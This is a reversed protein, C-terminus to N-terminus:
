CKEYIRFAIQHKGDEAYQNKALFLILIAKFSARIDYEYSHFKLRM